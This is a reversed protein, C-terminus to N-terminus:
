GEQCRSCRGFNPLCCYHACAATYCHAQSKTEMAGSLHSVAPRSNQVRKRKLFCRGDYQSRKCNELSQDITNRKWENVCLGDSLNVRRENVYKCHIDQVLFSVNTDFAPLSQTAPCMGAIEMSCLHHIDMRRTLAKGSEQTRRGRSERMQRYRQQPRRSRGHVSNTHAGREADKGSNTM